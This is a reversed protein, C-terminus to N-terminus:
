PLPTNPHKSLKFQNEKGFIQSTSYIRSTGGELFAGHQFKMNNILGGQISLPHHLGQYLSISLYMSQEILILSFILKSLSSKIRRIDLLEILGGGGPYAKGKFLGRGM